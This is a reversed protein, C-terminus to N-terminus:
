PRSGAGILGRVALGLAPCRWLIINIAGKQHMCWSGRTGARASGAHRRIVYYNAPFSM